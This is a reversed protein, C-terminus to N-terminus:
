IEQCLDHRRHSVPFLLLRLRVLCIPWWGQLIGFDKARRLAIGGFVQIAELLFQASRQRNRESTPVLLNTGHIEHSIVLREVRFAATFRGVRQHDIRKYFGCLRPEPFVELEVAVLDFQREGRVVYALSELTASIRIGHLQGIGCGVSEKQILPM